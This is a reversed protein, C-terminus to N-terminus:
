NYQNYSEIIELLIFNKEKLSILHIFAQNLTDKSDFLSSDREISFSCTVQGEIYFNIILDNSCIFHEIKHWMFRSFEEGTAFKDM